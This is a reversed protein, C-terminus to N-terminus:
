SWARRLMRRAWRWRFGRLPSWWVSLVPRRSLARWVAALTEGRGAGDGSVVKLVLRELSLWSRRELGVVGPNLAAGALAQTADGLMDFGSKQLLEIQLWPRVNLELLRPAGEGDSLFSLEVIGVADVAELINLTIDHLLMSDPQSEVICASGGRAPYKVWEVVEAYRVNGLEDRVVCASREGGNIPMLKRQAVWTRGAQFDRSREILAEERSIDPGVHVKAGNALVSGFPKSSPKIVLDHGFRAVAPGVDGENALVLTDAVCHGLGAALLKSFLASKDLGGGAVGRCRSCRVVDDGLRESADLLLRLSDDETAFALVPATSRERLATVHDVLGALVDGYSGRPAHRLSGCPVAGALLSEEAIAFVSIAQGASVAWEVVAASVSEAGGSVILVEPGTM